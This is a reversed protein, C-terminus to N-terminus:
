TRCLSPGCTRAVMATHNDLDLRGLSHDAQLRAAATPRMLINVRPLQLWTMVPQWYAEPKSRWPEQALDIHLCPNDRKQRRAAICTDLQCSHHPAPLASCSRILCNPKGDTDNIKPYPTNDPMAKFLYTVLRQGSPISPAALELMGQSAVFYEPHRKSAGDHSPPNRNAYPQPPLPAPSGLKATVSHSSM